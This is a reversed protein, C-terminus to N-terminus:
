SACVELIRRVTGDLSGLQIPRYLNWLPVVGALRTLRTFGRARAEDTPLRFSLAWLDRLATAATTRELTIGGSSERLFVVAAIPVPASSGRRDDDLGLYVRGRRTAAVHTGAPPHGDYMDRRIRLLAPGPLLTPVPGPRCCAVDETLVRHGRRHFALALTTKGHYRPAALIVARGGVDVAAAHLAVDGRHMFCLAAPVAWLRQELTITDQSAPLEICGTQPDIRYGGGDTTWFEFSQEVQYLTGRVDHDAGALPWDILPATDPRRRPEPAVVVELRDVGGGSRLFQLPETCSIRFGFASPTPMGPLPPLPAYRSLDRLDGVVVRGRNEVWAHATLRGGATKAVGIRLDAPQGYRIFLAEAALAQPLCTAHPVFRRALAVARAIRDPSPSPGRLPMPPRAARALLRRVVRFPLLWLGLRTAVLWLGANCLLFGDARM